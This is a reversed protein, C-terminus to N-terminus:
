DARGPEQEIGHKLCRAAIVAVVKAADRGVGQVMSSAMAFLFQLGVFYLGPEDRAIGEDHNPEGCGDFVPLNIFSSSSGNEFGTCWVINEIPLVRGDQLLPLGDQVGAVRPIREIGAALLDRPKVRVLPAGKVFVKKRARRGLPTRVTLVYFLMVRMVLRVLIMRGALGDVRFPLHGADRGSLWVKHGRTALELAIEAGSNGAGVVLVGGPSLSSSNRYDSSHLQVIDGRLDKAFSPIKPCQFNAMAVVVHDAEIAARETRVLYRQGERSVSEVRIGSRVPLEFYKAYAELYDGMEEKTPFYHRQGPFPLGDLGDLWAPTFLRLSDWRKRWADGVRQEADFIAFSLGTRSLHYGVSLGAQGGGIVVV